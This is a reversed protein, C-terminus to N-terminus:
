GEYGRPYHSQPHDQCRQCPEKHTSIFYDFDDPGFKYRSRGIRVVTKHICPGAWNVVRVDDGVKIDPDPVNNEEWWEDVLQM